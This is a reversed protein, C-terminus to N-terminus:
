EGGGVNVTIVKECVSQVSRSIDGVYLTDGHGPRLWEAHGGNDIGLDCSM